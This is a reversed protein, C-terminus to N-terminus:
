QWNNKYGQVIYPSRLLSTGNISTLTYQLSENHSAQQRFQTEMLNTPIFKIKYVQSFDMEESLIIACNEQDFVVMNHTLAFSSDAPM